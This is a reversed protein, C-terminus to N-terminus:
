KVQEKGVTPMAPNKGQDANNKGAAGNKDVRKVAKLAVPKCRLMLVNRKRLELEGNALLVFNDVDCLQAKFLMEFDLYSGPKQAMNLTGFRLGNPATVAFDGYFNNVGAFGCVEGDRSFEIYPQKAKDPMSINEKGDKSMQGEVYVPVWAKGCLIDLEKKCNVNKRHSDVITKIESAQQDELKMKEVMCCGATAVAVAAAAGLINFLRSM